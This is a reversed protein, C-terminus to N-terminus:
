INCRGSDIMEIAARLAYAEAEEKSAFVTQYWTVPLALVESNQWRVVSALPLWQGPSGDENKLQQDAPFVEYGNHKFNIM